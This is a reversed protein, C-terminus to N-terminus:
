NITFWKRELNHCALVDSTATNLDPAGLWELTTAIIKSRQTDSGTCIDIGHLGIEYVQFGFDSRWFELCAMWQVMFRMIGYTLRLDDIVNM